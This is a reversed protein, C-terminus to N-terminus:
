GPAAVSTSMVTVGTPATAGPNSEPTVSIEFAKYPTKTKLEAKRDKNVQLAGINQPRGNQPRLWVVYTSAGTAVMEPPALHKVEIEVKHNGDKQAAAVEM